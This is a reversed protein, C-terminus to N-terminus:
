GVKLWLSFRTGHEAPHADQEWAEVEVRGGFLTVFKKMLPMGFGTGREGATGTRSHGKSVDFLQALVEPPMGVGHDRITVCAMEGELRTRIEIAGGPHSFKAANSIVNGLVSNILACPEALVALDPGEVSVVLQKDQLRGEAILLAERIAEPLAVPGIALPKDEARRIDRVLGTLAVGNRSAAAIRPLFREVGMEPRAAMLELSMKVVSFHNAVDHCVIHLMEKLETNKEAIEAQQARLTTHTRVRARLEAPHFPKSVYDNAGIEFGRVVDEVENRTTLFVVPLDRTAPDTRLAQCVAYGDMEPMMVDLLVLDLHKVKACIQLAQSGRTAVTLDYEDKLIEVLIEINAPTDDVLLLSPRTSNPKPMPSLPLSTAGHHLPSPIFPPFLSAGAAPPTVTIKM